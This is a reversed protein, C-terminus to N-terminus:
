VNRRLTITPPAAITAAKPNALADFPNRAALGPEWVHTIDAILHQAVRIRDEFVKGVVYRV